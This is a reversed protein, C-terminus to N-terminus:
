WGAYETRAYVEDEVGELGNEEGCDNAVREKFQEGRQQDITKIKKVM